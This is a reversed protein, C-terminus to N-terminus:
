QYETCYIECLTYLKINQCIYVSPFPDGGDLYHVYRNGESTKQHGKGKEEGTRGLMGDWGWAVASTSGIVMSKRSNQTFPIM